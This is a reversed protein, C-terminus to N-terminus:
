KSPKLYNNLGRRFDRHSSYKYESFLAFYENNTKEFAAYNTKVKPLYLFYRLFYGSNLGNERYFCYLAAEEPTLEKKQNNNM